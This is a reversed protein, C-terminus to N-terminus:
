QARKAQQSSNEFHPAMRAREAQPWAPSKRRSRPKPLLWHRAEAPPAEGVLRRGCSGQREEVMENSIM